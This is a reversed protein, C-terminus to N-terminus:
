SVPPEPKEFLAELLHLSYFLPFDSEKTWRQPEWLFYAASDRHSRRFAPTCLESFQPLFIGEKKQYCDSPRAQRRYQSDVYTGVSKHVATDELPLYYYDRYNKYFYKLQDRCLPIRLLGEGDQFSGSIGERHLSLLRPLPSELSFRILLAQCSAECLPLREEQGDLDEWSVSLIHIRGQRLSKYALLPLLEAMGLMDERNHLLLAQLLRQDASGLYERYLDILEGGSFPDERCVGCLEEFDRQRCRGMSFLKQLPRLERYLDIGPGEPWPQPLAYFDYRCRLYPIDFGNGNFHVLCTDPTCLRSFELLLEQEQSPKQAFYQRLQWCGEQLLLVGLLYLHSRSRHFGTTEIDFFLTHEPLGARNLLEQLREPLTVSKTLM